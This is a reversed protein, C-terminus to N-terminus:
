KSNMYRVSSKYLSHLKLSNDGTFHINSKIGISPSFVSVKIRFFVWSAILIIMIVPISSFYITVENEVSIMMQCILAGVLVSTAPPVKYNILRMFFSYAFCFIGPIIFLGWEGFDIVSETLISNAADWVPLRFHLNALNEESGFLPNKFKSPYLLSPTAIILARALNEGYLPEMTSSRESMLSLYELVFSRSGINEKIQEALYIKKRDQYLSIANPVLQLITPATAQNKFTYRALRLTFFATTAIQIIFIAAVFVILNNFTLFKKPRVALIAAMMFIILSFVFIRRGFGFQTVLLLISFLYFIFKRRVHTEIRALYISLAGTPTILAIVLTSLISVQSSGSEISTNGMFGLRGTAVFILALLTVLGILWISRNPQLVDLEFKRFLYGGNELRGLVHLFGAAATAFGLSRTLWYESIMSSAVLDSNDRVFSIVSNLTGTGYAFVLAMGLVDYVKINAPHTICFAMAILGASGAILSLQNFISIFDALVVGSLGLCLEIIGFILILKQISPDDKALFNSKM